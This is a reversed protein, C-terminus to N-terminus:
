RYCSDPKLTYIEQLDEIGELRHQGLSKFRDPFHQAFSHSIMVSEGLVKSMSEIRAALNASDGIVTFELRKQTGINGYTVQGMHLALGFGLPELSKTQRERNLERMHRCVDLAAALANERAQESTMSCPNPRKNADSVPFIALAADGIFRLVQGGHDLIPEAMCDFFENLTALFSTESMSRALRTSERLDSFWIVADIKEGDGRKILGDLVREGAYRGLYTELLSSAMKRMAHVEYLRGLVALIEYIHGLDTTDFGGPRNSSLTMANIQGNSFRMPMAIYDTAGENYLDELVGFDLNPNKIDLRRRIGGIGEYIPVLPSNLYAPDLLDEYSVERQEIDGRKAWWRFSVAAVQPHLTRIIIALRWLPIGAALMSDVLAQTLAKPSTIEPAQHLLWEMLPNAHNSQIEVTDTKIRNEDEFWADLTEAHFAVYDKIQAADEFTDEYSWMVNELVQDGVKLNWYSANGKFPCHTQNDSKYMLDMRVDQRPFYYVPDLRTEHMVMVRNSDVVTVDNFVARIRHPYPNFTYDYASDDVTISELTNLAKEDSGM